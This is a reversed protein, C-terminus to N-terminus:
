RKKFDCFLKMQTSFACVILSSPSLSQIFVSKVQKTTELTKLKKVYPAKNSQPWSWAGYYIIKKEKCHLEYIQKCKIRWHFWSTSVHFHHSLESKDGRRRRRKGLEGKCTCLTAPCSRSTSSPRGASQIHSTCELCSTSRLVPTCWRLFSGDAVATPQLHLISARWM